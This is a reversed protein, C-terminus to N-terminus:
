SALSGCRATAHAAPGPRHDAGTRGTPHGSRPDADRCKRRRLHEEAVPRGLRLHARVRLPRRAPVRQHAHSVDSRVQSRRPDADCLWARRGRVPAHDPQDGQHHLPAHVPHSDPPPADRPHRVLAIIVANSYWQHVPLEGASCLRRGRGPPRLARTRPDTRWAVSSSRASRPYSPTRAGRLRGGRRRGDSSRRDGSPCCIGGRRHPGGPASAGGSGSVRCPSAGSRGRAVGARLRRARGCAPPGLARRLGGRRSRGIRGGFDRRRAVAEPGRMEVLRMADDLPCDRPGLKGGGGIRGREDIEDDPRSQQAQHQHALVQLRDVQRRDHIARDGREACGPVSLGM